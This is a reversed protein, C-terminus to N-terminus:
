GLVLRLLGALMTGVLVAGLVVSILIAESETFVQRQQWM